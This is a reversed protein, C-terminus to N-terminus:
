ISLAQGTCLFVKTESGFMQFIAPIDASKLIGTGPLCLFTFEQPESALWGLM